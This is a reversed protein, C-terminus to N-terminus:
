VIPVKEGIIKLKLIRTKLNKKKLPPPCRGRTGRRRPGGNKWINKKKYVVKGVLIVLMEKCM